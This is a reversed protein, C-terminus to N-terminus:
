RHARHRWGRREWRDALERRQEPTLVQAAETLAQVVRKSAADATSIQEARLAEFAAPDITDARLLTLFKERAEFPKVGLATVDGLASKFIGTVKDRQEQTADVRDLVRDVRRDIRKGMREPTFGGHAAASLIWWPGHAAGVAYGGIAGVSLLLVGTIAGRWRRRRRPQQPAAEPLQGPNETDAMEREM